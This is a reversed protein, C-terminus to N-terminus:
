RLCALHEERLELGLGPGAPAELRGRGCGALFPAAEVVDAALMEPGILEAAFVVDPGALAFHLGAATGVGFEVMSGVLCPLGADGAIRAIRGAAALGGVKMVKINFVDCAMREVLEHADRVTLLSEDAMVPVPLEATLAAMGEIDARPVPQEVLELDHRTMEALVERATELDYGQNADVRLKVGAGVAERVAAVNELDEGPDAGIKVKVTAYGARAYRAAEEVMEERPGTGVAWALPVERRRAGGLLDHVPRGLVRGAVDHLAVDVAAKAFSQEPVAEEMAEIVRALELPDLGVVAPAIRGSIM